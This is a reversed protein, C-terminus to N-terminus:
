IALLTLETLSNPDDCFFGYIGTDLIGRTHAPKAKNIAQQVMVPNYGGTLMLANDAKVTFQYMYVEDLAYASTDTLSNPDDARFAGYEIIDVNYGFFPLLAEQMYKTTLSGRANIASTLNQLRQFVPKDAQVLKYVREWESLLVSAESPFIIEETLVDANSQVGGLASATVDVDRLHLSEADEAYCGQPLLLQLLEYFTM